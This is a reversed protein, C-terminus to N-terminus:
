LMSRVNANLKKTFMNMSSFSSLIFIASDSLDTSQRVAAAAPLQPSEAKKAYGCLSTNVKLKTYRGYLSKKSYFEQCHRCFTIYYFLHM